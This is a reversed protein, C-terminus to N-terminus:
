GEGVYGADIWSPRGVAELVRRNKKEKYVWNYYGQYRAAKTKSELPIAEYAKLEGRYRRTLLRVDKATVGVGRSCKGCAVVYALLPKDITTVRVGGRVRAVVARARDLNRACTSPTITANMPQCHIRTISKPWTTTPQRKPLIDHLAPPQITM